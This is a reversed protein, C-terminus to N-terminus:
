QRFLAVLRLIELYLWVLTGVLSFVALWEWRSELKNAVGNGVFEFDMVLSYSAMLTGLIGIAIGFVGLDGYLGFMSDSVGTLMLGLNILGFLLYSVGAIVFIKNLLPSTRFVGRSFFFLVVAFVALTALVAQSVVGPFVSELISSIGGVVLGQLGAYVLTAAPNTIRKFAIVLGLVLGVLIAPLALAPIFWGVAAALLLLGFSVAGKQITGEYTMVNAPEQVSPQTFPNGSTNRYGADVGDASYYNAAGNNSRQFQPTNKFTPFSM